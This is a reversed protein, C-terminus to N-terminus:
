WGMLQVYKRMHLDNHPCAASHVHPDAHKMSHTDRPTKDGSCCCYLTTTQVVCSSASDGERGQAAMTDAMYSRQETSKLM